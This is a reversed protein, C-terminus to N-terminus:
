MRLESVTKGGHRSLCELVEDIAAPELPSQKRNHKATQLYGKLTENQPGHSNVAIHRKEILYKYWKVYPIHLKTYSRILLNSNSGDVDRNLDFHRGVEPDDLIADLWDIREKISLYNNAAIMYPLTQRHKCPLSSALGFDTPMKSDKTYLIDIQVPSRKRAVLSRLISLLKTPGNQVSYVALLM